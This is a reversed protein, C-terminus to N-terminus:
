HLMILIWNVLMLILLMGETFLDEEETKSMSFDSNLVWVGKDEKDFEDDRYGELDYFSELDPTPYMALVKDFSQKIEVKNKTGCGTLGSMIMLGGLVLYLSKASKM